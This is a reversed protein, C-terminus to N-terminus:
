FWMFFLQRVLVFCVAAIAAVCWSQRKTLKGLAVVVVFAVTAGVFLAMALLLFLGAGIDAGDDPSSLRDMLSSIAVAVPALM